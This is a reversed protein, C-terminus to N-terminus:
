ARQQVRSIGQRIDVGQAMLSILDLGKESNVDYGREKAMKVLDKIAEYFDESDPEVGLATAISFTDLSDSVSPIDSVITSEWAPAEEAMSMSARFTGGSTSTMIANGAQTFESNYRRDQTRFINKLSNSVALKIYNELQKETVSAVPLIRPNGMRVAGSQELALIDDKKYLSDLSTAMGKVPIPGQSSAHLRTWTAKSIGFYDIVESATLQAPMRRTASAVFKQRLNAGLLNAWVTNIADQLDVGFKLRNRVINAVTGKFRAHLATDTQPLHSPYQFVIPQDELYGQLAEWLYLQFSAAAGPRVSKSFVKKKSGEPLTVYTEASVFIPCCKTRNRFLTLVESSHFPGGRQCGRPSLSTPLYERGRAFWRQGGKTRGKTCGYVFSDWTSDPIGVFECLERGTMTEPLEPIQFKELLGLVCLDYAVKPIDSIGLDNFVHSYDSVLDHFDTPISSTM